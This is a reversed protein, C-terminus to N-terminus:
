CDILRVIAAIPPLASGGVTLTAFLVDAHNIAPAGEGAYSYQLIARSFRASSISTLLIHSRRSPNRLAM